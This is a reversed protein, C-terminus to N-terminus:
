TTPVLQYSCTKVAGRYPDGISSFTSLNCNFTNQFPTQPTDLYAPTAVFRGLAQGNFSCVGNEDACYVASAFNGSPENADGAGGLAPGYYCAKPVNMAPDPGLTNVNCAVTNLVTFYNYNGNAGFAVVRQGAFNCTGNEAVCNTYVTTGDAGCGPYQGTGANCHPDTQGQMYSINRKGAAGLKSVFSPADDRTVSNYGQGVVFDYSGRLDASDTPRSSDYNPNSQTPNSFPPAPNVMIPQVPITPTNYYFTSLPVCCYGNTTFFLTLTHNPDNTSWYDVYPSFISVTEPGTKKPSTRAASLVNLLIGASQKYQVEVATVDITSDNEFSRLQTIINQENGYLNAAIDGTNYVPQFHVAPYGRGASFANKFLSTDTYNQGNLFAKGPIKFLTSLAYSNGQYDKTSSIVNWAATAAAADRLDLALVMAIQHSTLYDLVQQLSSMEEGGSPVGLSITDRLQIAPVSGASQQIYAMTLSSVAPNLQDNSFNGPLTFPSFTNQLIYFGYDTERGLTLDHSMAPQNDSTLKIDLEIMELGAQAALGIAQLSNEPVGPNTGDVLAHLGRHSSVTILDPKPNEIVSMIKATSFNCPNYSGTSFNCSTQAHVSACFCLLVFLFALGSRGRAQRRALPPLEFHLDDQHDSSALDIRSSTLPREELPLLTQEVNSGVRRNSMVRSRMKGTSLHIKGPAHHAYLSHQNTETRDNTDKQTPALWLYCALSLLDFCKV